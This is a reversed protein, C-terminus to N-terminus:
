VTQNPVDPEEIQKHRLSVLKHDGSLVMRKLLHSRRKKQSGTTLLMKAVFDAELPFREM